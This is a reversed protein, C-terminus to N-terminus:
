PRAAPTQPAPKPADPKAAPEPTRTVAVAGLILDTIDQTAVGDPFKLDFKDAPIAVGKKVETYLTKLFTVGKADDLEVKRAVGDRPSVWVRVRAPDPLGLSVNSPLSLRGGPLEIEYGETEVGDLREGKLAKKEPHENLMDVYVSPDYTKSPAYDAEPLAKRIRDLDITMAKTGMPMESLQKVIPGNAAVTTKVTMELTKLNMAGEVRFANPPQFWARYDTSCTLDGLVMEQQVRMTMGSPQAPEAAGAPGCLAFSLAIILCGIPKM